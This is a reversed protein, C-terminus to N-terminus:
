RINKITVEYILSTYPPVIGTSSGEQGFALSSPLIFLAKEGEEMLGIGEELGKLVQWEQGYVYQFPEEQKITSDFFKGNLFRGEYDITLTDGLMVKKWDGQSLKIYYLGSPQPAVKIQAGELFQKLIEKEYEGFDEIWKLFAEKERNYQEESQIELVSASIIMDDGEKLFSPLTKGLTKQFFDGAPIIFSASDGEAMMTFCANVSRPYNAKELRFKRRGTFFVSDHITSYALDTTIYDGYSAKQASEGIKHLSFYIGDPSKTYGPYKGKCASMFFAVAILILTASFKTKIKM